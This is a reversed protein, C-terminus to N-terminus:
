VEKRLFTECRIQEQRVRRNWNQSRMFMLPAPTRDVAKLPWMMTPISASHWRFFRVVGAQFAHCVSPSSKINFSPVVQLGAEALVQYRSWATQATSDSRPLNGLEMLGLVGLKSVTCASSLFYKNFSHTLGLSLRSDPCRDRTAEGGRSHTGLDWIANGRSSTSRPRPM